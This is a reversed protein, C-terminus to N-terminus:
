NIKNPMYKEMYLTFYLRTPDQKIRKLTYKGLILM